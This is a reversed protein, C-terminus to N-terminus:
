PGQEASRKRLVNGRKVERLMIDADGIGSEDSIRLYDLEVADLSSSVRRALHTVICGM